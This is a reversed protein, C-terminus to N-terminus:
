IIETLSLYVNTGFVKPASYIRYGLINKIDNVTFFDLINDFVKFVMNQLATQGVTTMCQSACSTICCNVVIQIVVDTVMYFFNASVQSFPFVFHNFFMGANAFCSVNTQEGCEFQYFVFFGTFRQVEVAARISQFCLSDCFQFVFVVNVGITTFVCQGNTRWQDDGFFLQIFDQWFKQFETLSTHDNGM